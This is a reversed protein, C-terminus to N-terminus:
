SEKKEKEKANLSLLCKILNARIVSVDGQAMPLILLTLLSHNIRATRCREGGNSNITKILAESARQTCLRVGEASECAVPVCM